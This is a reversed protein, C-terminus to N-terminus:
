EAATRRVRALLEDPVSVLIPLGMRNDPDAMVRELSSPEPITEGDELMGEIHGTLAEAAMERVEDLTSGATICGLFDPFHVGYDTDPDKALIAIYTPM